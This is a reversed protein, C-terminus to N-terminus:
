QSEYWEDVNGIYEGNYPTNRSIDSFDEYRTIDYIGGSFLGRHGVDYMDFTGEIFVYKGNYERADEESIQEGNIYFWLEEDIVEWDIKLWVANKTVLYCWNDECLYVATDEFSINGVGQVAIKKGHYETPNAILQIISVEIPIIEEDNDENNKKNSCSIMAIINSIILIIITAKKMQMRRRTIKQTM